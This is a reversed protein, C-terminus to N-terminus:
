HDFRGFIGFWSALFSSHTVVFMDMHEIGFIPPHIAGDMEEEERGALWPLLSTHATSSRM